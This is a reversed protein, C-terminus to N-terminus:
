HCELEVGWKKLAGTDAKWNDSIHLTWNGKIDDELLTALSPQSALTFEKQLIGRGSGLSNFPVLIASHGAPSILTVSLDGHYTHTLECWVRINKLAGSETVSLVSRIGAPNKDPIPLDETKEKKIINKGQQCVAEVSWKNLRGTDAGSLDCVTLEWAGSLSTGKLSSLLVDSDFSAKLDSGGANKRNILNISDGGPAKLDVKLDQIYTHTIDIRVAIKEIMGSVPFVITDTIGSPNNDPILRSPRSEKTLVEGQRGSDGPIGTEFTIVEGAASINFLSLGSEMGGWAKSSPITDRSLALGQIGKFLDAEDGSNRNNELNRAGDAQILACQYHKDATGGQWENSGQTDCHYVALGSSKCHSDLNLRSRNEVIFYENPKDSVLYKHITNYDGHRAQFRGPTNILIENDAWGALHRLYGCVPAPSRGQNLHSGSSMLCYAGLGASPDTDGDRKGYDYLDPFRCILHGAEHCFTGIKMDVPRRGLSQITYLNCRMGNHSYNMVHNHPWLWNQYLTQGAYLFNVADVVGRQRCDFRSLDVGFDNIAINLAEEMLPTQIYHTRNKSLRVPGVVANTYELRNSSITQYYTKVSCANGYANFNDGNLLDEVHGKEIDSTIDQFDVLITLGMVRPEMSLQTGSLLGQNRGLTASVGPPPSGEPRMAQFKKEFNENRLKKDEQIHRVLGLPVPKYTPAGSSVLQGKAPLAYCYLDLNTDYVVTYGDLTEYRAYFEDGFVRLQIDNGNKQPFTRIKGLVLCM